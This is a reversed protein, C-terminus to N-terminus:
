GEEKEEGARRRERQGRGFSGMPILNDALTASRQTPWSQTSEFVRSVFVM